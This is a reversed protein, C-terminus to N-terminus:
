AGAKIEIARALIAMTIIFAIYLLIRDTVDLCRWTHKLRSVM